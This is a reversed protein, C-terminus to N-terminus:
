YFGFLSVFIFVFSFGILILGIYAYRSDVEMFVYDRYFGVLNVINVTFFLVRVVKSSVSWYNCM